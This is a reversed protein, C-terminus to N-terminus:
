VCLGVRTGNKVGAETRATSVATFVPIHVSRLGLSVGIRDQHRRKHANCSTYSAISARRLHPM